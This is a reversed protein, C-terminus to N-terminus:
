VATDTLRELSDVYADLAEVPILRRDGIRVFHITGARMLEYLKTKGVSLYSAAADLSLLRRDPGLQALLLLPLLLFLKVFLKLFV